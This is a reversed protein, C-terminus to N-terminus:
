RLSMGSASSTGAASATSCCWGAVDADLVGSQIGAVGGVQNLTVGVRGIHDVLGDDHRQGVVVAVGVGGQELRRCRRRRRSGIARRPGAPDPRCPQGWAARAAVFAAGEGDQPAQDQALAVLADALSLTSVNHAKATRVIEVFAQNLSCGRPAILVGEATDLIRAGARRPDQSRGLAGLECEGGATRCVGIMCCM